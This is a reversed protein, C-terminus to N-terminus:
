VYVVTHSGGNLNELKNDIKNKVSTIMQAGTLSNFSSMSVGQLIFDSQKFRDVLGAPTGQIYYEFIAKAQMESNKADWRWTLEIDQEIVEFTAM